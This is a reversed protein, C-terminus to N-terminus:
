IVAYRITKTGCGKNKLVCYLYVRHGSDLVKKFTDKIKLIGDNEDVIASMAAFAKGEFMAVPQTMFGSVFDRLM